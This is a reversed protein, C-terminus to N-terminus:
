EAPTNDDMTLENREFINMNMHGLRLCSHLLYTQVFYTVAFRMRILSHFFFIRLNENCIPFLSMSRTHSQQKQMFITKASIQRSPMKNSTSRSSSCLLLLLPCISQRRTFDLIHQTNMMAPGNAAGYISISSSVIESVNVIDKISYLM